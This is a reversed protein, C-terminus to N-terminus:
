VIVDHTQLLRDVTTPSIILRRNCEVDGCLRLNHKPDDRLILYVVVLSKLAVVVLDHRHRLRDSM